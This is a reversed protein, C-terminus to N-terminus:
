SRTHDVSSDHILLCIRAGLDLDGPIIRGANLKEDSHVMFDDGNAMPVGFRDKVTGTQELILSESPYM